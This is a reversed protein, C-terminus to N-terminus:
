TLARYLGAASILTGAWWFTWGIGAVSRRKDFTLPRRHPPRRLRGAADGRKRTRTM